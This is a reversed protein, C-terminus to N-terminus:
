NSTTGKFGERIKLDEEVLFHSWQAYVEVGPYTHFIHERHGIIVLRKGKCLAYGFEVHRGGKGGNASFAILTYADNIDELDRNGAEWCKVPDQALQEPTFSTVLTNNHLDIWRSTVRVLMHISELEKRYQRMQANQSYRAAFYYKHMNTFGIEPKLM